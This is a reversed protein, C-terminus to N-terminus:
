VRFVGYVFKPIVHTCPVTSWFCISLLSCLHPFHLGLFSTRHHCPCPFYPCGPPCVHILLHPGPSSPSVAYVLSHPFSCTFSPFCTVLFYRGLFCPGHTYLVHILVHFMFIHILLLHIVLVHILLVHILLVHILLVHILLVHILLVNILLVHSLPFTSWSFMPCPSYPNQVSPMPVDILLVQHAMLVHIRLVHILLVSSM